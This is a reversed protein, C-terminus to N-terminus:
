QSPPRPPLPDHISKPMPPLAPRGGGNTQPQPKPRPFQPVETQGYVFNVPRGVQITLRRAIENGYPTGDLEARPMRVETLADRPGVYLLADAADSLKLPTAPAAGGTVVPM